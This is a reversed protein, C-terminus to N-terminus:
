VNWPTRFYECVHKDEEKNNERTKRLGKDRKSQKKIARERYIYILLPMKIRVLCFLSAGSKDSGICFSIPYFIWPM